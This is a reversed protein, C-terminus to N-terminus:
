FFNPILFDALVLVSNNKPAYGMGVISSREM